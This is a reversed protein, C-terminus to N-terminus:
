VFNDEELDYIFYVILFFNMYDWYNIENINVLEMRVDFYEVWLGFLFFFCDIKNGVLVYFGYINEDYIFDNSFNDLRGWDGDVLEEVLYDNNIYCLFGWYGIEFKGEKGWFYVYDM